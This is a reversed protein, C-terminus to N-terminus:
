TKGYFTLRDSDIVFSLLIYVACHRVLNNHMCYYIHIAVKNDGHVTYRTKEHSSIKVKYNKTPQYKLM